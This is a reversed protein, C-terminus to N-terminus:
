SLNSSNFITIKSTGYRFRIATQRGIKAVVSVRRSTVVTKKALDLPPLERLDHVRRLAVLTDFFFCMFSAEKLSEMKIRPTFDWFNHATRTRHCDQWIISFPKETQM